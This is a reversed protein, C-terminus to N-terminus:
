PINTACSTCSVGGGAGNGFFNNNNTLDSYTNVLSGNTYVSSSSSKYLGYSNSNSVNTQYIDLRGNDVYIGAYEYYWDFGGDQVTCYHLRNNLNNSSYVLGRWFGATPSKGIFSIRNSSVATCNLSGTTSVNIEAQAEMTFSAGQNITLDGNITMNGKLLVAQNLDIWTTTGGLTTGEVLVYPETNGSNYTSAADLYKYQTSSVRVGHGDINQFVNSAFNPLTANLKLYLGYTQMNTIHSNQMKLLGGNEMFIGAYEYYWDGGGDSINTYEMKNNANGSEIVLSNWYGKTSSEGRIYVPKAATGSSIFTGSPAIYLNADACMIVNTGEGFTLTSNVVVNGCIKVTQNSFTQPTTVDSSIIVEPPYTCSGDDKEAKDDFNIAVPDTCGKKKCSQISTVSVTLALFLILKRMKQIM